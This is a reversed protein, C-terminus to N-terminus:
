VVELNCQDIYDITGFQVAYYPEGDVPPMAKVIQGVRGVNYQEPNMTNRPGRVAKVSQGVQFKSSSTM